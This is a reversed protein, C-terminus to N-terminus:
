SAEDSRGPQHILFSRFQKKQKKVSKKISTDGDNFFFNINVELAGSIKKLSTFMLTRIERKVQSLFSISLGSKDSLSQLTMQKGKRVKKLENGLSDDM